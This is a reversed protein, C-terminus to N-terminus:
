TATIRVAQPAFVEHAAHFTIRPDVQIGLQAMAPALRTEIFASMAAEDEWSDVNHCDDGDWWTVHAIGGIPPNNLWDVAARLRDYDERSLGPLVFDAIVAM